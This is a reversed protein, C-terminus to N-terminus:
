LCRHGRQLQCAGRLTVDWRSNATFRDGPQHHRKKCSVVAAQGSLGLPLQEAKTWQASGRDQEKSGAATGAAKLRARIWSVPLEECLLQWCWREAEGLEGYFFSQLILSVVLRRCELGLQVERPELLLLAIEPSGWSQTKM